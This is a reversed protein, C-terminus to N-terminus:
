FMYLPLPETETFDFGAGSAASFRGNLGNVVMICDRFVDDSTMTNIFARAHDLSM